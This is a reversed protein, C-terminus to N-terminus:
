SVSRQGRDRRIWQVLWKKKLRKERARWSRQIPNRNTHSHSHAHVHTHVHTHTEFMKLSVSLSVKLQEILETSNKREENLAEEVAARSKERETQLCEEMKTEHTRQADELAGALM